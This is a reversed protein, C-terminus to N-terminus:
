AAVLTVPTAWDCPGNACIAATRAATDLAVTALTATRYGLTADDPAHRCVECGDDHHACLLDVLGRADVAGLVAAVRADLLDAREFTTSVDSTVAEGPALEPALFHNTHVLWGATPRVVGVGAPSIELCGADDPTVVTLVTSAVVPASRVLDIAEDVTRCRGLVARALLHVPVGGRVPLASGAADPLESHHRLLNFHVGLGAGNVGIKALMGHECLGVFPQEDGRVRQTHWGDALEDHWDWSQASVTGRAAPTAGPQPLHALTSCETPGLWGAQALIETRANLTMVERASLGAGAAVGEIERRLDPSWGALSDLCADAIAGADTPARGSDRALVGFIEAYLPLTRALPEAVLAGRQKGREFPDTADIEVHM